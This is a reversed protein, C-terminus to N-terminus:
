GHIFPLVQEHTRIMRPIPGSLVRPKDLDSILLMVEALMGVSSRWGAFAFAAIRRWVRWMLDLLCVMAQHCGGAAVQGLGVCELYASNAIEEEVVALLM